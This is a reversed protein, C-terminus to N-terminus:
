DTQSKWPVHITFELPIGEIDPISILSPGPKLKAIADDSYRSLKKGHAYTGIASGLDKIYYDGDRKVIEFHQDSFSSINGLPLFLGAANVKMTDQGHGLNGVKFPLSKIEIPATFYPALRKSPSDITLYQHPPTTTPRTKNDGDNNKYFSKLRNSLTHVVYRIFPDSLSKKFTEASIFLAQTPSAAKATVSRNVNDIVSTEGLLEGDFITAIRITQGEDDTHWLDVTGQLIIYVGTSPQGQEFISQDTRFFIETGETM